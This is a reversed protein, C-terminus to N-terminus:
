NITKNAKRLVELANLDLFFMTIMFNPSGKGHEWFPFLKKIRNNTARVVKRPVKLYTYIM